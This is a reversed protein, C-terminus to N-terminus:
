AAKSPPFAGRKFGHFLSFYRNDGLQEAQRWIEANAYATAKPDVVESRGYHNLWVMIQEPELEGDANRERERLPRRIEISSNEYDSSSLHKRIAAWALEEIKEDSLNTDTAM